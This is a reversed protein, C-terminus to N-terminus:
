NGKKYQKVAHGFLDNLVEITKGAESSAPYLALLQQLEDADFWLGHGRPCRDLTLTPHGAAEIELEHLGQDCRPCLHRASVVGTTEHNHFKTLPDDPHTGTAQMLLKTEGKDLWIGLCRHCFFAEVGRFKLQVLHADCKPCVLIMDRTELEM